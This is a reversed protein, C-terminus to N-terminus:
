IPRLEIASAWTSRMPWIGSVTWGAQAALARWEDESREQGNATVAMLVDGFRWVRSSRGDRLVADIIVLRARPTHILAGRANALVRACDADSWNHLTWKVTYVEAPPVDRLFDGAHLEVLRDAVDALPGALKARLLDVVSPLELVAGRLRPHARLLAAIFDGGGGGIDLVTAGDLDAWPYDALMGRAQARAGAGLVAHFEDQWGNQAAYDFISLDTAYAIQAATRPEGAAVARPIGEAARCFRTGYLPVWRHWQTWHSKTLLLSSPSHAYARSAGDLQFIGNASLVRMIQALRVPQLDAKAALEAITLPGAALHDPIDHEVAAVLCKTDLYALYSEALQEAPPRLLRVVNDALDVTKSALEWTQRDPLSDADLLTDLRQQKLPGELAELAEQLAANVKNLVEEM